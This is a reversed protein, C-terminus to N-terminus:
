IRSPGTEPRGGTGAPLPEITCIVPVSLTPLTRPADASVGPVDGRARVGRCKTNRSLASASNRTRVGSEPSSCVFDATRSRALDNACGALHATASRMCRCRSLLHYDHVPLKRRWFQLKQCYRYSSNKRLDQHEHLRRRHPSASSYRLFQPSFSPLPQNPLGKLHEQAGFRDSIHGM